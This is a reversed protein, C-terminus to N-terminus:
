PHEADLRPRRAAPNRIQALETVRYSFAAVAYFLVDAAVKGLLLGWIPESTLLVALMMLAPRWFFTDLLEAAGFEAALMVVTRGAVRLAYRPRQPTVVTRQERVVTVALVGYFGLTAGAIAAAALLPPSTTMSAALLSAGVMTLLCAAEAPAYRYAWFRWGTMRRTHRHGAGGM